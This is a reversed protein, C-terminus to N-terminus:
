RFDVHNIKYIDLSVLSDIVAKGGSTIQAFYEVFYKQGSSSHDIFVPLKRPDGLIVGKQDGIQYRYVGYPIEVSIPSIVGHMGTLAPVHGILNGGGGFLEICQTGAFTVIETSTALYDSSIRIVMPVSSPNPYNTGDVYEVPIDQIGSYGLNGYWGTSDTSGTFEIQNVQDVFTVYANKIPQGSDDHIYGGVKIPLDALPNQAYSVGSLSICLYFIFQISKTM